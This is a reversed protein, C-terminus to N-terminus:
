RSYLSVAQFKYKGFCLFGEDHKVRGFTLSKISETLMKIKQQLQERFSVELLDL